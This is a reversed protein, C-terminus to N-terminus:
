PAVVVGSGGGESVEVSAVRADLAVLRALLFRALDEVSTSALGPVGTLLKRELLALRSNLAAQLAAWNVSAGADPYELAVRVQYGHLRGVPHALADADHAASFGGDLWIRITAM